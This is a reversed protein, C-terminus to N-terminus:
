QSHTQNNTDYSSQISPFLPRHKRECQRLYVSESETPAAHLELQLLSMLLRQKVSAEQHVCTARKISPRGVKGQLLEHKVPTVAALPRVIPAAAMTPHLALLKVRCVHRDTQRDTSHTSQCSTAFPAGAM